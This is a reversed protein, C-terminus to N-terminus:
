FAIRNRYRAEMAEIDTDPSIFFTCKLDKSYYSVKGKLSGKERQKDTLPRANEFYNVKPYKELDIIDQEEM